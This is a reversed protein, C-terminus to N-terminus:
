LSAFTVSENPSGHWIGEKHGWSLSALETSRRGRLKPPNLRPGLKPWSDSKELNFTQVQFSIRPIGPGLSANGLREELKLFFTVFGLRSKTRPTSTLTHTKTHACMHVSVHWHTLSRSVSYTRLAGSLFPPPPTHTPPSSPSHSFTIFVRILVCNYSCTIPYVHMYVYVCVCVSDTNGKHSARARQVGLISIIGIVVIKSISYM